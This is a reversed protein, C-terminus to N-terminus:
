YVNFLSLGNTSAVVLLDQYIAVSNVSEFYGYDSFDVKSYSDGFEKKNNSYPIVYMGSEGAAVYFNNGSKVFSNVVHNPNNPDLIGSKVQDNLVAYKEGQSNTKILFIGIGESGLSVALVEKKPVVLGHKAEVNINPFNGLTVVYSFNMIDDQIDYYFAKLDKTSNDFALAIFDYKNNTKEISTDLIFLGQTENSDQMIVTESNEKFAFIVGSNGGGSGSTIGNIQKLSRLKNGFISHFMNKEAISFYGNSNQIKYKGFFSPYDGGYFKRADFGGGFVLNNKNGVFDIADIDRDPTLLTAELDVYSDKINLVDVAGSYPEGILSYSAAVRGGRTAVHNPNLIVEAGNYNISLTELQGLLMLSVGNADFSKSSTNKGSQVTTFGIAENFQTLRSEDKVIEINCDDCTLIEEIEAQEELTFDDIEKKCSVIFLVVCFILAIKKM